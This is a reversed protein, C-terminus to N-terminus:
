ATSTSMSRSSPSGAATASSRASPRTSAWATAADDGRRPVSRLDALARPVPAELHPGGTRTKTMAWFKAYPLQSPPVVRFVECVLYHYTVLEDIGWLLLGDPDAKGGRGALPSGFTPPCLHTHVDVLPQNGVIDRVLEKSSRAHRSLRDKSM